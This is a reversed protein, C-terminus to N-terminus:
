PLGLRSRYGAFRERIEDPDLGFDQPTDRHAGHQEQLEGLRVRLSTETANSWAAGSRGPNEPGSSWRYDAGTSRATTRVSKTKFEIPTLYDLSSHPRVEDYRLVPRVYCSLGGLAEASAPSSVM